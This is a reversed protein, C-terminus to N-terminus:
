TGAAFGFCTPPSSLRPGNSTRGADPRRRMLRASALAASSAVRSRAWQRSRSSQEVAIDGDRDESLCMLMVSCREREDGLTIWRGKGDRCVAVRFGVRGECPTAIARRKVKTCVLGPRRELAQAGDSPQNTQRRGLREINHTGKGARITHARSHVVGENALSRNCMVYWTDDGPVRSVHACQERTDIDQRRMREQSPRLGPGPLDRAPLHPHGPGIRMRKQIQQATQQRNM